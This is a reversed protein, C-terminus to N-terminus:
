DGEFFPAGLDKAISDLFENKYLRRERWVQLVRKISQQMKTDGTRKRNPFV